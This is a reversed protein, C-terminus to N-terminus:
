NHRQDEKHSRGIGRIILVMFAEELIRPISTEDAVAKDIAIRRLGTNVTQRALFTSEVHAGKPQYLRQRAGSAAVPKSITDLPSLSQMVSTNM